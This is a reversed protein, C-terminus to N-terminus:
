SNNLLFTHILTFAAISFLVISFSRRLVLPAIKASFHSALASITVAALAIFIPVHWSIGNWTSAHALFATLCNLSIILLSTGTAKALPTKFFKVLIPIALFGGGVGFLGTMLGIALSFLILLFLPVKKEEEQQPPRLWMSTAAGILVLSFGFLLASDSIFRSIWSGGINAVMGLLWITLGERILVERKRFKPIVGSTASAFVIALAATSAHHPTFDFFYILIPVSLMSGGAGVFGLVSGIFAGALLAGLIEM